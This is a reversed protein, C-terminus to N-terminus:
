SSEEIFHVLERETDVKGDKSKRREMEGWEEEWIRNGSRGTRANFCGWHNDERRKIRRRNVKIWELKRELDENIYM